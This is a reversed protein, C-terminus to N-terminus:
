SEVEPDNESRVSNGSRSRVDKGSGADPVVDRVDDPLGQGDKSETGGADGGKDQQTDGTHPSWASPKSLCGGVLMIGFLLCFGNKTM